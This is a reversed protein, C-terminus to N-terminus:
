GGQCSRCSLRRRGAENALGAENCKRYAYPFRSGPAVGRAECLAGCRHQPKLAHSSGGWAVPVLAPMEPSPADFARPFDLTALVTEAPVAHALM